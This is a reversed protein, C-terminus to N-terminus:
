VISTLFLLELRVVPNTAVSVMGLPTENIEALEVTPVHVRDPLVTVQRIGLKAAELTAAIVRTTLGSDAPVIELAALTIALSGSVSKVFLEEVSAVVTVDAASRFTVTVSLLVDIAAPACFM